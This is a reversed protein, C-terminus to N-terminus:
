IPGFQREYKQREDREARRASIIRVIETGDEEWNTHVVLLVVKGDVSGITQWREEGEIVRDLETHACPDKFARMATAFRVGHKAFNAEAKNPDWTFELKM